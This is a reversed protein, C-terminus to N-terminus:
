PLKILDACKKQLGSKLPIRVSIQWIVRGPQQLGMIEVVPIELLNYVSGSQCPISLTCIIRDAYCERLVM